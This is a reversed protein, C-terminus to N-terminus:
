FDVRPTSTYFIKRYDGPQLNPSQELGSLLTSLGRGHGVLLVTKNPKENALSKLVEIHRALVEDRYEGGFPRFDYSQYQDDWNPVILPGYKEIAQQKTLGEVKGFSCERLGTELRLPVALLINIIEATESARKLDSSIILNIGLDSLLKSLEKAESRGKSNLPIDTQGKIRGELDWDTSTHRALIFKMKEM